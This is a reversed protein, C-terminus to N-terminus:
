RPFTKDHLKTFEKSFKDQADKFLPEENSVYAELFEILTKEAKSKGALTIDNKDDYKKGFWSLQYELYKQGRVKLEEDTRQMEELVVGYKPVLKELLSCAILNPYVRTPM